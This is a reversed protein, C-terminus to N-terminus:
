LIYSTTIDLNSSSIAFNVSSTRVFASANAAIFITPYTTPSPATIAAAPSTIEANNPGTPKAAPLM